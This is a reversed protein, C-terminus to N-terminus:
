DLGGEDIILCTTTRWRERAKTGQPALLKRALTEASETALGLGVWSHLTCGDISLAALGTPATVCVHASPSQSRLRNVIAKILVSKGSGACGALYLNQGSAALALVAQQESSLAVTESSPQAIPDRPIYHEEDESASSDTSAVFANYTAEQERRDMEEDHCVSPGESTLDILAPSSSDDFRNFREPTQTAPTSPRSSPPPSDSDLDMATAQRLADSSAAATTLAAEFGSM